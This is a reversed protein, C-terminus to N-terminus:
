FATKPESFIQFSSYSVGAKEIIEALTTKKYGKELFLKVCVTLIRKKHAFERKYPGHDERRRKIKPTYVLLIGHWKDEQLWFRLGALKERARKVDEEGASFANVAIFGACVTGKGALYRRMFSLISRLAAGRGSFRGGCVARVGAEGRKAWM